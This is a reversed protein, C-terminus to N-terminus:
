AGLKIQLGVQVIAMSSPQRCYRRCCCVIGCRRTPVVAIDKQSLTLKLFILSLTRLVIPASYGPRSCFMRMGCRLPQTAVCPEQQCTFQGARQLGVPLLQAIQTSQLSMLALFLLLLIPFFAFERGSQSM